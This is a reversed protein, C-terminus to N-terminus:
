VELINTINKVCEEVEILLLGLYIDLEFVAAFVIETSIIFVILQYDNFEVTLNVIKDQLTAIATEMAGFMTAAMAGFKREEVYRPLKSIITLGNRNVIATGSRGNVVDVKDEVDNLASELLEKNDDFKKKAKEFESAQKKMVKEFEKREKHLKKLEKELDVKIENEVEEKVTMKIEKNLLTKLKLLEINRELIAKLKNYEKRNFRKEPKKWFILVIGFTLIDIYIRM